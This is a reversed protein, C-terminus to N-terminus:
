LKWAFLELNLKLGWIFIASSLIALIISLVLASVPRVDRNALVSVLTTAIVTPVFGVREVLLGFVVISLIIFFWARLDPSLTEDTQRRGELVMVLAGVLVLLGGAYFPFYGVGMQRTTGLDYGSSIYVVVAGIVVFVAGCLFASSTLYTRNM